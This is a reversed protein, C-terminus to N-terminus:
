RISQCGDIFIRVRSGGNARFGPSLTIKQGADLTVYSGSSLTGNAIISNSSEFRHVGTFLNGVTQNTPCPPCNVVCPHNDLFTRIANGPISGFGNNFNVYQGAGICYSMITGGNSPAPGAACPPCTSCDANSCTSSCTAEVGSCNDLAGTVLPNNSIIWGCWHTHSSGFLHGMEHMVLYIQQPTAISTAPFNQYNGFYDLDNYCFPHDNVTYAPCSFPEEGKIRGIDGAVGSRGPNALVSFDLGVCINGWFDDKYYASLDALANDRNDQRYPDMTTWVNIGSIKVNIQENRYGTAVANFLDYVYNITQQYDKSRWQYLSDFCDVFVYICRDGIVSLSRAPDRAQEMATYAEPSPQKLTGCDMDPLEQSLDNSETLIYNKLNKKDLSKGIQFHREPLLVNMSFYNDNLTLMVSNERKENVLVGTYILPEQVDNVVEQRNKTFRMNELNTRILQATLLSNSGSPFTLEVNLPKEQLLTDIFDSSIDLIEYQNNEQKSENLKFPSYSRVTQNNEFNERVSKKVPWEQPYAHQMAVMIILIIFICKM